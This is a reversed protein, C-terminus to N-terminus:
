QAARCRRSSFRGIQPAFGHRSMKRQPGIIDRDVFAPADYDAIGLERLPYFGASRRLQLRCVAVAVATIGDRMAPGPQLLPESALLAAPNLRAALNLGETAAARKLRLEISMGAPQSLQDAPLYGHAIATGKLCVFSWDFGLVLENLLLEQGRESAVAKV